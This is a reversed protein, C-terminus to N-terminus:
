LHREITLTQRAAPMSASVSVGRVSGRWPTSENIQVLNGVDFVGPQGEGTLIPLEISVSYGPGAKGLSALGRQRAAEPATILPDTQLLALKNGASGARKVLALVGQTTGSVYVANIDPGDRREIASTIISDPALEVDASGLGWNWPGGSDGSPRPPYPHRVLLSAQSRHSQLYGGAAEAIAQVAALRTGQTSWAGGPVLWDTIGWDLAVGSLDLAQVALQQANADTAANFAEERAWPSGVLATVSRGSISIRRQGFRHDRKLSEVLFVWTMGDLTIQIQQPLAAGTGVPALQVFLSEPGSASFSWAFSGADASLTLDYIPVVAMDPLRRAFLNHTTMYFRAPLIYFLSDPLLGFCPDVGLALLVAAHTLRDTRFFAGASNSAIAQCFVLDVRVVPAPPTPPMFPAFPGGLSSFSLGSGWVLGARKPLPKGRDNFRGRTSRTLAQALTHWPTRQYRNSPTAYRYRTYATRSTPAATEWPTARRIFIPAAADWVSGASLTRAPTPSPLDWAAAAQIPMPKAAQWASGSTAQAAQGDQWPAARHLPQPQASNWASGAAHAQTNAAGDWHEAYRPAAGRFVANDYSAALAAQLGLSGSAQAVHVEGLGIAGGLRLMGTLTAVDAPPGSPTGGFVLNVAAHGPGTVLDNFVLDAANHAPPTYLM